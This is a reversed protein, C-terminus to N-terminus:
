NSRVVLSGVWAKFHISQSQRALIFNRKTLQEKKEDEIMLCLPKGWVAWDHDSRPLGMFYKRRTGSNRKTAGMALGTGISFAALVAAECTVWSEFAFGPLELTTYTLSKSNSTTRRLMSLLEAVPLAESGADLSGPPVADLADRPGELEGVALEDPLGALEGATACGASELTSFLAAMRAFARTFAM